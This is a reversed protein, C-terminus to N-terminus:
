RCTCTSTLEVDTVLLYVFFIYQPRAAVALCNEKFTCTAVKYHIKPSSASDAIYMYMYLIEAADSIPLPLVIFMQVNIKCLM